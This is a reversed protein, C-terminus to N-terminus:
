RSGLVEHPSGWSKTTTTLRVAPPSHTEWGIGTSRASETPPTQSRRPERTPPSSSTPITGTMASSMTPTPSQQGSTRLVRQREMGPTQSRLPTRVQKDTLDLLARIFTKYAERGAEQIEERSGNEPLRKPYFAGKAGSPVIVANKAMQAKVLGLVETRFDEVRDSWRLGGRSIADYRLHSGEVETSYVWIEHAPRPQPASTIAQPRLKFSIREHGQYLSTRDTSDILNLFGSLVRDADLTAVNELAELVAGRCAAEANERPGSLRPDFRATFYSMLARGAQPHDDLAEALFDYSHVSGLQRMYKAYARLVTVQRISLRLTLVLRSFVDSEARGTLVARYAEKFM